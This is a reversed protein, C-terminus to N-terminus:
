AHSSRHKSGTRGINFGKGGGKSMPGPKATKGKLMPMKKGSGKPTTGSVRAQKDRSM